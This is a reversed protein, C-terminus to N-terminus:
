FERMEQHSLIMITNEGPSSFPYYSVSHFDRKLRVWNGRLWIQQKAPPYLHLSYLYRGDVVDEDGFKIEVKEVDFRAANQAHIVFLACIKQQGLLSELGQERM